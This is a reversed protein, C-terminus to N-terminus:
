HDCGGGKLIEAKVAQQQKEIAAARAEAMASSLYVQVETNAPMAELISPEEMEVIFDVRESQLLASVDVKNATMQGQVTAQVAERVSDSIVGGATAKQQEGEAYVPAATATFAMAAALAASLGRSLHHKQM